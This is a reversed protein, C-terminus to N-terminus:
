TKPKQMRSIVNLVLKKPLLPLIPLLLRQSLPIGAIINLKSALMAQYGANAVSRTDAISKFIVTQSMGSKDGFESETPGPLLTTVTVDTGSLEQAIANSFSTVFAKTAFYVAQRPGPMLSATSSVNLVKGAGQKIMNPLCLGTLAVLASINLQIMALDDSLTREHFRGIGGFGANNILYDVRKGATNIQELIRQPANPDTLDKAIVMVDISHCKELEAKLKLLKDERRAVIILNGGHAAHIHAFAEGIGSSAGTILATPKATTM